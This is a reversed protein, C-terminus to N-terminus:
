RTPDVYSNDIQEFMELDEVISYRTNYDLLFSREQLINTFIALYEEVILIIDCDQNSGAGQDSQPLVPQLCLVNVIKFSYFTIENSHM